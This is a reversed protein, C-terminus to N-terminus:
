QIENVSVGEPMLSPVYARGRNARMHGFKEVIVNQGHVTSHPHRGRVKSRKESAQKYDSFYTGMMETLDPHNIGKWAIAFVMGDRTAYERIALGESAVERISYAERSVSGRNVASFKRRVTEISEEREGLTAHAREAIASAAISAMLVLISYARFRM